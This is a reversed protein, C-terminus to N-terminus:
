ERFRKHSWNWIVWGVAVLLVVVAVLLFVDSSGVSGDECIAQVTMAADPCTHLTQAM